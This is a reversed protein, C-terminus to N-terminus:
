DLWRGVISMCVTYIPMGAADKVNVYLNRMNGDPIDDKAMDEIVAHSAQRAAERDAFHLGKNDRIHVDGNHTDFFYQPMLARAGFSFM